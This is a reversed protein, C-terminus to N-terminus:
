FQKGVLRIQEDIALRLAVVDERSDFMIFNSASILLRQAKKWKGDEIAKEALLLDGHVIYFHPEYWYHHKVDLSEGILQSMNAAQSSNVTLSAQLSAQAGNSGVADIYLNIAQSGDGDPLRVYITKQYQNNGTSVDDLTFPMSWVQGDQQFDGSIVMEMGQPLSLVAVGTVATGENKITVIVPWEKYAIAKPQLNAVRELQELLLGASQSDRGLETAVALIDYGIFTSLGLGYDATMVARRRFERMSAFLPVTEHLNEWGKQLERNSLNDADLSYESEVEAGHLIATQVHQRFPFEEIEVGQEDRLGSAWPHRAKVTLGLAPEVFINRRDHAGAVLLGKGSFVHERLEKQALVSLHPREALMIYAAYDGQRMEKTFSEATHVLTYEWENDALLEKIFATQEDLTPAASPGYPDLNKVSDSPSQFWHYSLLHVDEIVEGLTFPRDCDTKITWSKTSTRGFWGWNAKIEVRYEKGLKHHPASLLINVEGTQNAQVMLDTKNSIQSDNVQTGWQATLETDVLKGNEDLATITLNTDSTFESGWNVQVHIDELASCERPQDTLVLLRGRQGDILSASVKIPPEIVKFTDQAILRQSGNRQAYLDCRYAGLELQDARYSRSLLQQQQAEFILQSSDSDLIMATDTKVLNQVLIVDASGSQATYMVSDFCSSPEGLYVEDNAAEVTGELMGLVPDERVLLGASSLTKWQGQLNAQMVCAYGGLPLNQSTYQSTIVKSAGSTLSVRHEALNFQEDNAAGVVFSRLQIDGSEATGINIVHHNCAFTKGKDVQPKDVDTHGELGSGSLGGQNVTFSYDSSQKIEGSLADVVLLEAQYNGASISSLVYPIQKNHIGNPYLAQVNQDFSFIVNGTVDLLRVRSILNEAVTNESTNIIRTAINATDGKEYLVKDTSIHSTFGLIDSTESLVIKFEHETLEVLEDRSNKFKARLVYNGAITDATNWKAQLQIEEKSAISDVVETDFSIVSNGTTDYIGYHIEGSLFGASDNIFNIEANVNSNPGYMPKDTSAELSIRTIALISPIDLPLDISNAPDFSNKFRLYGSDLVPRVEGEVMNNFAFQAPIQVGDVDVNKLNWKLEKKGNIELVEDPLLENISVDVNSATTVHLEVDIGGCIVPFSFIKGSNLDTWILFRDGFRDYYLVDIDRMAADYIDGKLVLRSERTDAMLQVISDEESYRPKAVPDFMPAFILNRSCDAVLNVGEYEFTAETYYDSVSGDENIKSIRNGRNLVYINKYADVAIAQPQNLGVSAILEPTQRDSLRYVGSNTAAYMINNKDITVANVSGIAKNFSIEKEPTVKLIGNSTGAYINNEDDIAMGNRIGLSGTVFDSIDGQPTIIKIRSNDGAYINGFSDAAIARGSTYSSAALTTADPDITTIASSDAGLISLQGSLVQDGPLIESQDTIISATALPGVHIKNILTGDVSSDSSVIRVEYDGSETPLWEGFDMTLAPSGKLTGPYQVSSQYVVEGEQIQDPEVAYTFRSIQYRSELILSDELRHVEDYNLNSSKILSDDLVKLTNSTMDATYLVRGSDLLVISSDSMVEIASLSSFSFPYSILVQDNDIGVLRKRSAFLIEGNPTLDMDNVTGLSFGFYELESNEGIVVDYQTIAELSTSSFDAIDVFREQGSVYNYIKSFSTANDSVYIDSSRVVVFQNNIFKFSKPSSLQSVYQFHGNDLEYIYHSNQYAYINGSNDSAIYTPSKVDYFQELIQGDAIRSSAFKGNGKDFVEISGDSRLANAYTSNISTLIQTKEGTSVNIKDVGSSHHALITNEDVVNFKAYSSSYKLIKAFKGPQDFLGIKGSSDLVYIGEDRVFFDRISNSMGQAIATQAHSANYIVVEASGTIAMLEQSSLPIIGITSERNIAGTNVLTSFSGDEEVRQITSYSSILLGQDTWVLHSSTSAPRGIKIDVDTHRYLNIDSKVYYIEGDASVTFGYYVPSPLTKYLSIGESESWTYVRNGYYESIYLVGNKDSAIYRPRFELDALVENTGDANFKVLRKGSYDGAIFEKENLAILSSQSSFPLKGIKKYNFDKDIFFVENNSSLVLGADQSPVKSFAKPSYFQRDIVSLASGSEIKRIPFQSGENIYIENSPSAKAIYQASGGYPIEEYNGDISVKYVKSYHSTVFGGDPTASFSRIGSPLAAISEVTKDEYIKVLERSNRIGYLQGNQEALYDINTYISKALIEKSGDLSLQIIENRTSDSVVIGEDRQHIDSINGFDGAILNYTSDAKLEYIARGNIEVAILRDSAVKILKKFSKGYKGYLSLKEGTFEYVNGSSDLVLLTGSNLKLVSRADNLGRDAIVKSPQGIKFEYLFSGNWVVYENNGRYVFEKASSFDMSLVNQVGDDTIQLISNSTLVHLLGSEDVIVDFGRSIGEVITEVSGNLDRKKLVQGSNDLFYFNGSQDVTSAYVGSVEDKSLFSSLSADIREAGFGKNKLTVTAKLQQPPLNTNGRNGIVASVQIPDKDALQSIPPEFGAYGGIRKTPLVEISEGREVLLQGDNGYAQVILNYTDALHDTIHWEVEKETQVGPELVEFADDITGGLPVSITPYQEVVEGSSNVVKLYLRVAVPDSGTNLFGVDLEVESYAEYVEGTAARMENIEIGSAAARHLVANAIVTSGLEVDAQSNAGFYGVANIEVSFKNETVGEIVYAGDNDSLTTLGLEPIRIEAGDIVSGDTADTVKGMVTTVSNAKEQRLTLDGLNNNANEVLTANFQGVEYGLMSLEITAEGATVGLAEFEGLHNTIAVESGNVKVQVNNIVQLTDFDLVRGQLNTQLPTESGELYLSPSFTIISGMEVNATAIVPKYGNVSVAISALGPMVSLQYQGNKDTLTDTNSAGTVVVAAGSLPMGDEASLVVGKIVGQDPIAELTVNGLEINKAAVLTLDASVPLYGAASIQIHYEGPMVEKIHFLGQGNSNISYSLTSDEYSQLLVKAAPLASLNQRELVRGSVSAQTVSAPPEVSTVASSSKLVLATTYADDQWSGNSLQKDFLIDSVTKYGTSDVTAQRISNIALAQQWPILDSTESNLEAVLFATAMEIESSISFYFKINNLVSLVLSTVYVSYENSQNLQFAGNANQQQLLYSLGKSIAASNSPDLLSIAKLAFATDLPNSDYGEFSGFGGDLNQSLLVSALESSADQNSLDKLLAKWYIAEIHSQRQQIVFGTAAAKDFNANDSSHLVSVTEATVQLADAFGKASYFSGDQSQQGSLWSLGKEIKQTDAYVWSTLFVAVVFGILGIRKM